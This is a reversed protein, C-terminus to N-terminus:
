WGPLRVLWGLMATSYPSSNLRELPEGDEKLQSYQLHIFISFDHNDTIKIHNHFYMDIKLMTLAWFKLHM